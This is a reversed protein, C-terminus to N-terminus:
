CTTTCKEPIKLVDGARLVSGMTLGNYNLLSTLSIGYRRAIVSATEGRRIRHSGRSAETSSVRRYRPEPPVSWASAPVVRGSMPIIIREGVRLTRSRLRPNASQIMAVSVRYRQAIESLTQGRSVYHDVFTIRSTVPLSDYREAVATGRGRPVRVVVSRSPPTVGRVFQPNLELLTAVTTDALRAIVDLGTADPVTIEDFTLPALPDVHFGYRDPQKAILSAAILKPVYDRTERRLYRRDSLQFFTHDDVSDPEGPLRDIGREIRGVGANYAAAALYVSGLRQRLDALYNVAAETAKFPDRREDVWPDVTLGYLRGTSAMFQWMGVARARSVATNSLGSEILTLYLLDEPLGKARLRERIMGQYRGLRSLWIEFRDRADVQFFELYELVRRNTAFSSVDIDFTPEPSPAAGIASRGEPGFLRVAEREVEEGKV